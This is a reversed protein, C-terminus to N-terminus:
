FECIDSCKLIPWIKEKILGKLIEGLDEAENYKKFQYKVFNKVVGVIIHFKSWAKLAIEM